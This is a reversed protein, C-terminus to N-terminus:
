VFTLACVTPKLFVASICQLKVTCMASASCYKESIRPTLNDYWAVCICGGGHCFRYSRRQEINKYVNNVARRTWTGGMALTCSASGHLIEPVTKQDSSCNQNSQQQRTQDSITPHQSKDEMSWTNGTNLDERDLAQQSMYNGPSTKRLWNHLSCAALM